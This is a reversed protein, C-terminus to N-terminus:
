GLMVEMGSWEVRWEGLMSIENRYLIGPTFTRKRGETMGLLTSWKQTNKQGASTSTTTAASPGSTTATGARSSSSTTKATASSSSSSSTITMSSSTSMSMSSSSASASASSGGTAVVGGQVDSPPSARMANKAVNKYATIDQSSSSSSPPNLIAVMGNQCHSGVSCYIYQPTTTTINITYTHDGAQDGMITGSYFGGSAPQCPTDFASLAVSHSGSGSYFHFVVSDGENAAFSDPQFNLGGSGVKVDITAASAATILSLISLKMIM